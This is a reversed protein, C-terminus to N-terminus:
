SLDFDDANLRAFHGTGTNLTVSFDAVGDKGTNLSLKGTAAEYYFTDEAMQGAVAAENLLQFGNAAAQRGPANPDFDFNQFNLVDNAATQGQMMLTDGSDFIDNFVFTDDGLGGTLNDAGHGGVIIDNGDMGNIIDTGDGGFLQDPGTLGGNNAATGGGDGNITDDGTGGHVTDNGTGGAITDNGDRGYVQDSGGLANINSARGAQDNIIESNISRGDQGQAHGADFNNPDAFIPPVIDPGV